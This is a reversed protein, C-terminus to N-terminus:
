SQGPRQQQALLDRIETLLQVDDAVPTPEAVKNRNRRENIKNMPLVIIFYIAAAIILFNVIATLLHGVSIVADDSSSGPNPGHRLTIDWISDFNPKGFIAGIIPNVFYDVVATVVASFAAGIVVAVALEVVNGRLIFDRFGSFVNRM